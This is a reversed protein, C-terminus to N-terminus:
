KDYKKALDDIEDERDTRLKQMAEVVDKLKSTDVEDQVEGMRSTETILKEFEMM